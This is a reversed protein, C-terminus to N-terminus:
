KQCLEHGYEIDLETSDLLDLGRESPSSYSSAQVDTDQREESSEDQIELEEEEDEEVLSLRIYPYLTPSKLRNKSSRESNRLCRM